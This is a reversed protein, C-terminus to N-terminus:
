SSRQVPVDEARGLVARGRGVTPSLELSGWATALVVVPDTGADRVGVVSAPEPALSGRAVTVDPDVAIVLHTRASPCAYVGAIAALEAPTPSRVDIARLRALEAAGDRLILEDGVWGLRVSPRGEVEWGDRSPVVRFRLSGVSVTGAGDDGLRAEWAAGGAAAMFWGNPAPGTVFPVDPPRAPRRGTLHEVVDDLLAGIPASQSNAIAAVAVRRGPLVRLEARAGVFEALGGFWADDGDGGTTCGSRLAGPAAGEPLPDSHHLAAVVADGDVSDRLLATAFASLDAPSAWWGGDGVSACGLTARRWRDAGVAVYCGAMGPVWAGPLDRVAGDAAGVPDLVLRRAAVAWPEGTVTSVIHALAAYNTNNYSVRTGPEFWPQMGEVLGIVDAPTLHDEVHHGALLRLAHYEPLGSRHQLLSGITIDGSRELEPFWRDLTDDTSLLGGAVCRHVAVATVLKALSAAYMPTHETLPTGHELSALGRVAIRSRDPRVVVLAVGPGHADACSEILRDLLEGLQDDRQDDRQDGLPAVPEHAEASTSTAPHEDM